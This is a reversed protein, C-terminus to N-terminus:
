TEPPLPVTAANLPIGRAAGSVIGAGGVQGAVARRAAVGTQDDAVELLAGAIAIRLQFHDDRIRVAGDDVGYRKLPFWFRSQRNLPLPGAEAPNGVISDRGLSVGSACGGAVKCPTIRAARSCPSRSCNRGTRPTGCSRRTRSM